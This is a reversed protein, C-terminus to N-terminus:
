DRMTENKFHIEIFETIPRKAEELRENYSRNDIKNHYDMLDAGELFLSRIQQINTRELIRDVNIM